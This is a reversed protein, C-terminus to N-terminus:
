ILGEKLAFWEAIGVEREEGVGYDDPSEIVSKPVWVNHRGDGTFDFLIARNTEHVVTGFLEVINDM